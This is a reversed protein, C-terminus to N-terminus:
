KMKYGSHRSSSAVRFGVRGALLQETHGASSGRLLDDELRNLNQPRDVAYWEPLLYWGLGLSAAREISEEIAGSASWDMDRFLEPHPANTGILYWIRDTTPGFVVDVEGSALVDFALELSKAPLTPIDDRILAVSRGPESLVEFCYRIRESTNEGEQPLCAGAYPAADRFYSLAEAPTYYVVLESDPVAAAKELVDLVFSEHLRAAARVDLAPVLGAGAEGVIPAKAM